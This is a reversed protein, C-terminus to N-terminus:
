LCKLEQSVVNQLETLMTVFQVYMVILPELMIAYKINKQGHM